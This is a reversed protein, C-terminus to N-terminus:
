PLIAAEVARIFDTKARAYDNVSDWERRALDQKLTQYQDRTEPHTRLHDRFALHRVWFPTDAEVTHINSVRKGDEERIFLRRFPMGDEYQPLYTFGHAVMREVVLPALDFSPLGVLLDIVPKASLGPVSTSGIHEIQVIDPQCATAILRAEREFM